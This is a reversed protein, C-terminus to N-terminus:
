CRAHPAHVPEDADPERERTTTIAAYSGPMADPTHSAITAVLQEYGAYILWDAPAEHIRDAWQILADLSPRRGETMNQVTSYHVGTQIQARRLSWGRESLVRKTEVALREYAEAAM